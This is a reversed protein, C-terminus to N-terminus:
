RNLLRLLLHTAVRTVHDFLRGFLWGGAKRGSTHPTRPPPFCPLPPRRQKIRGTQQGTRSTLEHATYPTGAPTSPAAQSSVQSAAMGGNLGAGTDRSAAVIHGVQTTGRCAPDCSMGLKGMSIIGEGGPFQLTESPSVSVNAPHFADRWEAAARGPPPGFRHRSYAAGRMQAGAAKAPAAQTPLAQRSPSSMM